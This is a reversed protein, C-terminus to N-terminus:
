FKTRRMEGPEPDQKRPTTRVPRLSHDEPDVRYEELDSAEVDEESAHHGGWAALMKIIIRRYESREEPTLGALGERIMQASQEEKEQDLVITNQKLQIEEMSLVFKMLVDINNRSQAVAKLSLGRHGDELASQLVEKTVRALELMENFLNETHTKMSRDWGAIARAGMHVEEYNRLSDVSIGFERSVSAKSKGQVLYRDIQKRQERDLNLVENVRAM